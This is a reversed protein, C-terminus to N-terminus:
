LVLRLKPRDSRGVALSVFKESYFFDDLSEIVEFDIEHIM